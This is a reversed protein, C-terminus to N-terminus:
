AAKAKPKAATAPTIGLYANVNTMQEKDDLNILGYWNAGQLAKRMFSGKVGLKRLPSAAELRNYAAQDLSPTAMTTVIQPLKPNTAHAALVEKLAKYEARTEPSANASNNKIDKATNSARYDIEGSFSKGNYKAPDQEFGYRAWAYGGVDINAQVSISKMGMRDYMPVAKAFISKVVGGGQSGPDLKLYDHHVDKKNPDFTRQIQYTAGLHKVGTALFSIKGSASVSVTGRNSPNTGIFTDVMEAINVSPHNKMWTERANDNLFVRSKVAEFGAKHQETTLKGDEGVVHMHAQAEKLKAAKKEAAKAAKAAKTAANTDRAAAFEKLPRSDSEYALKQMLAQLKSRTTSTGLTVKSGNAHELVWNGEADIQAVGDTDKWVKKGNRTGQKWNAGLKPDSHHLKAKSNAGTFAPASGGSHEGYPSKSPPNAAEVAAMVAAKIKADKTKAKAAEHAALKAKADVLAQKALKGKRLVKDAKAMAAKNKAKEAMKARHKGAQKAAWPKFVGSTSVFSAGAKSAFRGDKGHYPNHKQVLFDLIEALTMM